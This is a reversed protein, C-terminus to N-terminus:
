GETKFETTFGQGGITHKVQIVYYKGDINSDAKKIKIYRGPIIQPLGICKGEGTRAKNMKNEVIHNAISTMEESTRIDWGAIIESDSTSLIPQKLDSNKAAQEKKIMKQEKNDYSMMVVKLDLYQSQKTFEILSLGYELAIVEASVEGSERFYAKDNFVFFERNLKPALIKTIFDFDSGKQYIKDELQNNSGKQDLSCLSSYNNMVKKAMDSYNADDFYREKNKADMMLKRVDMAIFSIESHESVKMSVSCIYGKFVKVLSSLYGIEVEVIKGLALSSKITDSFKRAEKDYAGSIDIVVSSSYRLSLTISIESILIDKGASIERGGVKVKYSPVKFNGYQNVLDDYKYTDTMLNGM